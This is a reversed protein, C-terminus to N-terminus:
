QNLWQIWGVVLEDDLPRLQNAEFNYMVEFQWDEIGFFGMISWRTLFDNLDKGLIKGHMPGGEHDFFIVENTFDDIAIFDGTNVEMFATKNDKISRTIAVVEPAHSEEDLAAEMWYPFYNNLRILADLDYRFDGSFIKQFANPKEEEIQYYLYVGASFETLLEKLQLPISKGIEEELTHIISEDIPMEIELKEELHWNRSQAINYIAHLNNKLLHYNM